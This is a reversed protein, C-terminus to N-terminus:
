SLLDEVKCSFNPLMSSKLKRGTRLRLIKKYKGNQPQSHIEIVGKKLIMLWTEPIGARAYLPLKVRRDYEISTDAVEILVLM